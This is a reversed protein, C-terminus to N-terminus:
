SGSELSPKPAAGLKRLWETVASPPLKENVVFEPTLGSFILGGRWGRSYPPPGLVVVRLGEFPVIDAPVGENWVWHDNATGPRPLTGDPQVGTWNWLNFAGTVAPAKDDCVHTMAYRVAKLDFGEAEIWGDNPDGLLHGMLQTHLQFNDPIGGFTVRYGKNQDTDLVLLPEDDLMLLMKTLFSHGGQFVRDYTLSKNLLADPMGHAAKRLQKSRALHAIVALSIDQAGLYAWAPEPNEAYVAEFYKEALEDAPPAEEDEEEDEAVLGDARAKEECLEYFRTAGDLTDPLLPILAPGSVHPDGGLEVIAGCTVAFKAAPVPHMQPLKASLRRLAEDREAPTARPLGQHVQATARQLDQLSGSTTARTILEDVTSLFAAM